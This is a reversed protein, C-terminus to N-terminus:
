GLLSYNIMASASSGEFTKGMGHWGRGDTPYGVARYAGNPPGYREKQLEVRGWILVYFAAILIVLFAIIAVYM